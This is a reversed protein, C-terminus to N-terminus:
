RVNARDRIFYGVAFAAFTGVFVSMAEGALPVYITQMVAGYAETVAPGVLAAVTLKNTPLSSPQDVLRAM